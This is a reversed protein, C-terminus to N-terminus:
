LNRVNIYSHFEIVSIGLMFQELNREKTGRFHTRACDTEYMFSFYPSHQCQPSITVNPLAASPHLSDVLWLPQQINGMHAKKPPM